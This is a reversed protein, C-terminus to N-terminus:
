AARPLPTAARVILHMLGAGGLLVFVGLGWLGWVVVPVWEAFSGLLSHTLSVVWELLTEWGPLVENLWRAVPVRDILERLEGVWGPDLTLVAHTGWALLSWGLLCLAAVIWILAIM